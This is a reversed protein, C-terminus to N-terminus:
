GIKYDKHPVDHWVVDDTDGYIIEAVQDNGIRYVKAGEHKELIHKVMSSDMWYREITLNPMIILAFFKPM